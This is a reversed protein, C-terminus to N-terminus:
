ARAGARLPPGAAVSRAGPLRPHGALIPRRCRGVLRGVAAPARDDARSPRPRQAPLGHLRVTDPARWPEVVPAHVPRGSVRLAQGARRPAARPRAEIRRARRRETEDTEMPLSVHSSAHALRDHHRRAAHGDADAVDAHAARQLLRQRRQRRPRGDAASTPRRCRRAAAGVRGHLPNRTRRTARLIAAGAPGLDRLMGHLSAARTMGGRSRRPSSTISGTTSRGPRAASSIPSSSCRRRFARASSSRCPTSTSTAYGDDFTM